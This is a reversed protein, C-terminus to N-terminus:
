SSRKTARFSMALQRPNKSAQFELNGGVTAPVDVTWSHEGAAVKEYTDLSRMPTGENEATSAFYARLVAPDSSEVDITLMTGGGEWLKSPIKDSTAPGKSDGTLKGQLTWWGLVLALSAASVPIKKLM